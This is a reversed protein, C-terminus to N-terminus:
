SSPPDVRSERWRKAVRGSLWGLEFGGVAYFLVSLQALLAHPEFVRADLGFVMWTANLALGIALVLFFWLVRARFGTWICAIMWVAFVSLLAVLTPTLTM